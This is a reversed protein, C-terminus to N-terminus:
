YININIDEKLSFLKSQPIKRTKYFLLLATKNFIKHANSKLHLISFYLVPFNVRLQTEILFKWFFYFDM